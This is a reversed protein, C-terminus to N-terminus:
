QCVIAAVVGRGESGPNPGYGGDPDVLIIKKINGSISAGNKSMTSTVIISIRSAVASPPNSSNGPRSVWSGGCFNDASTAYGKFSAVGNGASGSISNNKAWQAGWFNVTAGIGHPADDGIVFV